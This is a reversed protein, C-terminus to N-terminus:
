PKRFPNIGHKFAGHALLFALSVPGLFGIAIAGKMDFNRNRDALTPFESQFYRYTGLGALLGCAFWALIFLTTSM